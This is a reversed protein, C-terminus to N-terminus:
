SKDLAKRVTKALESITLPKMLFDNIGITNVKEKSIQESFGTCIVVPIDSRIKLIEKALMDGTMNPMTMDSIILDFKDPNAKFEELADVPSTRTDVQYGLKSLMNKGLDILTEEDDVFLIHESGTPLAKLEVTDLPM